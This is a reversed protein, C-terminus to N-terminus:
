NERSQLESTHEESRSSAATMPESATGRVSTVLFIQSYMLFCLRCSALLLRLMLASALSRGIKPLSWTVINSSVLSTLAWRFYAPLPRVQYTGAKRGGRAGP